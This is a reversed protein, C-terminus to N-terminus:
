MYGEYSGDLLGLFLKFISFSSNIMCFGGLVFMEVGNKCEIQVIKFSKLM